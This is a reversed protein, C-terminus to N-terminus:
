KGHSSSCPWEGYAQDTSPAAEWAVERIGRMVKTVQGIRRYWGVTIACFAAVMCSKDWPRKESPSPAPSLRLSCTTPPPHGLASSRWSMSRSATSIM